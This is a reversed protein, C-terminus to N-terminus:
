IVCRYITASHDIEACIGRVHGVSRFLLYLCCLHSFLSPCLHLPPLVLFDFTINASMKATLTAPIDAEEAMKIVRGSLSNAWIPGIVPILGVCRFDVWCSRLWLLSYYCYAVFGWVFSLKDSTRFLAQVSDSSLPPIQSSNLPCSRVFLPILDLSVLVVIVCCLM